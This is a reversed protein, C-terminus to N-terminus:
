YGYGGGGGGSSPPPSSPPSSPTSSGGGGGSSTDSSTSPPTPTTDQYTVSGDGMSSDTMPATDSTPTPTENPTYTVAGDAAITQFQSSLGGIVANKGKSEAPTDYIIAHPSTTHAVGVMKVGRTPHVHFPGYYPEGNVYGVIGDRPTICDIIQKIEGQYSPRPAIQPKIIAGFGTETEINLQPIGTVPIINQIRPNPPIVNLIRGDEDLFKIYENGANDTIVDEQKYGEGSNVVVVHDISFENTSTSNEIVPYNEGPSIIVIDTVQQYTPSSKDYDIIARAVAGYGNNCTDTVEVIPPVTYNKGPNVLQVGILSGTQEAFTDGVLAGIIPRADVGSGDAGFVNVKVGKCNLPPGTYCEGLSSSFGETSVNPNMFDFAGVDSILNGLLGGAGSTGGVAGAAEQVEKAINAVKMITEGAVGPVNAAGKGLQWFNSEKAVDAPIVCKLAESMGLLGEAKGRLNNVMDFGGLIKSVGGLAGGLESELGGIIKNFIAGTMQDGICETFNEVNDLMPTLLDSISGLMSDGIKQTACPLKDQLNKIPGIMAAQAATGAKKAISSSKTAALVKGFVDKYLNGLGGNLAPALDKYTTKVMDGILGNSLGKMKKSTESIIKAKMPGTANKVDNIANKMENKMEQVESSGAFSIVTGIATSVSKEVEGTIEELKKLKKEDLQRPSKQNKKGSQGGDENKTLINGPKNKSTYGSFPEFPNTYKGKGGFKEGTSAFLGFIVPLQADDGDLFFGLVTDGPSIRLSRSRGGKGSGGQPSLLVQAWPLDENPLETEDAPHYGYIRVKVRAGWAKGIQNIQKGQAKEPAVQGIWWRFGDKGIFNTKLLSNEIM